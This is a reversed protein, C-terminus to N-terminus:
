SRREGQSMMREGEDEVERMGKRRGVTREREREKNKQLTIVIMLNHIKM